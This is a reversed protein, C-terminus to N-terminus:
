HDAAKELRAVFEAHEPSALGIQLFRAVSGMDRRALAEADLWLGPFIESRMVGKADAELLEYKGERLIHWDIQGEEVRWM